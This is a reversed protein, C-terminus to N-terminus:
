QMSREDAIDQIPTNGCPGSIGEAISNGKECRIVQRFFPILAFPVTEPFGYNTMEEIGTPRNMAM